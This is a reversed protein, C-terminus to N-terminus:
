WRAETKGKAQIKIDGTNYQADVTVMRERVIVKMGLVEWVKQLRRIKLKDTMERMQKVRTRGKTQKESGPQRRM